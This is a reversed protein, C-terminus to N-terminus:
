FGSGIGRVGLKVGWERMGSVEERRRGSEEMGSERERLGGSDGERVSWQRVRECGMRERGCGM